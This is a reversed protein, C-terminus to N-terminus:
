NHCVVLHMKADILSPPINWVGSAGDLLLRILISIGCMSPSLLYISFPPTVLIDRVQIVLEFLDFITNSYCTKQNTSLAVNATNQLCVKFKWCCVHLRHFACLVVSFEYYLLLTPTNYLPRHTNAGLRTRVQNISFVCCFRQSTVFRVSVLKVYWVLSDKCSAGLYQRESSVPQFFWQPFYPTKLSTCM